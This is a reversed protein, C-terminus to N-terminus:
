GEAISNDRELTYTSYSNDGKIIIKIKNLGRQKVHIYHDRDCSSICILGARENGHM